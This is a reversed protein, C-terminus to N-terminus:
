PLPFVIKTILVADFQRMRSNRLYHIRVTSGPKLEELSITRPPAIGVIATGALLPAEEKVSTLATTHFLMRNENKGPGEGVFVIQGKKMDVSEIMGEEQDLLAYDGVGKQFSTIESRLLINAAISGLLLGSLGVIVSLTIKKDLINM